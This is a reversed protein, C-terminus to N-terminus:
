QFNYCPYSFFYLSNPVNTRKRYKEEWAVHLLHGIADLSDYETLATMQLTVTQDFLHLQFQEQPKYFTFDWDLLLMGKELDQGSSGCGDLRIGEENEVWINEHVASSWHRGTETFIQM